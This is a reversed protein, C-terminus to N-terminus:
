SAVLGPPLEVLRAATTRVFLALPVALSETIYSGNDAFVLSFGNRGERTWTCDAATGDYAAAIWDRGHTAWARKVAQMGTVLALHPASLPAVVLLDAWTEARQVWGPTRRDRDSWRELLVDHHVQRRLKEEVWIPHGNGLVVLRDCDHRQLPGAHDVVQMDVAESYLQQYFRMWEPRGTQEQVWARDGNFRSM